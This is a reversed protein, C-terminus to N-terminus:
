YDVGYAGGARRFEFAREDYGFKLDAAVALDPFGKEVANCSKGGCARKYIDLLDTLTTPASAVAIARQFNMWDWEVGRFLEPCNNAMWKVPAACSRTLPPKLIAAGEKINKYYVFNCTAPDDYNWVRSAFYHAFGENTAIGWSNKSQLCHSGEMIPDTVFACGCAGSDTQTGIRYEKLFIEVTCDVAARPWVHQHAPRADHLLSTM